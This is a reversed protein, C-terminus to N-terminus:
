SRSMACSAAAAGVSAQGPIAEPRRPGHQREARPAPRHARRSRSWQRARTVARRHPPQRTWRWPSRTSAGPATSRSWRSVEARPVWTPDGLPDDRPRTGGLTARVRRPGPRSPLTSPCMGRCPLGPPGEATGDSQSALWGGIPSWTAGGPQHWWVRVGKMAVLVRMWPIPESRGLYGRDMWRAHHSGRLLATGRAGPLTERRAGRRRAMMARDRWRGSDWTWGTGQSGAGRPSARAM